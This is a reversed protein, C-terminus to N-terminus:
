PWSPIALHDLILTVFALVALCLYLMGLKPTFVLNPLSDGTATGCEGAHGYDACAHDLHCRSTDTVGDKGCVPAHADDCLAAM